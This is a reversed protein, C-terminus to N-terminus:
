ATVCERCREPDAWSKGNIDTSGCSECRWGLLAQTVFPKEYARDAVPTPPLASAGNGLDVVRDQAQEFAAEIAPPDPEEYDALALMRLWSSVDLHLRKAKAQIAEKEATTVRVQIYQERRSM